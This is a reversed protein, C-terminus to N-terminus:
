RMDNLQDYKECSHSQSSVTKKLSLYGFCKNLRATLRNTSELTASWCCMGDVSVVVGGDSDDYWKFILDRSIYHFFTECVKAWFDLGGNLGHKDASFEVLVKFNSFDLWCSNVLLTYNIFKLTVQRICSINTVSTAVEVFANISVFLFRGWNTFM